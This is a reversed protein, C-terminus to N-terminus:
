DGHLVARDIADLLLQRVRRALREAENSPVPNMARRWSQESEISM